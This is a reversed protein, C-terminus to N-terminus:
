SRHEHNRNGHLNGGYQLQAFGDGIFGFYGPPGDNQPDRVPNLAVKYGELLRVRSRISMDGLHLNVNPWVATGATAYPGDSSLVLKGADVYVEASFRDFGINWPIPTGDLQSVPVNNNLDGDDFTDIFITRAFAANRGVGVIGSLSSVLVIGVAALRIAVIKKRMM